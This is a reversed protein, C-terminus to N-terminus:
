GNNLRRYENRITDEMTGAKPAAPPTGRRQVNVAAAKRAAAAQEAERKQREANQKALLKDRTTPNAWIAKDYATQPDMGTRVLALLDEFVDGIMEARAPDSLFKQAQAIREAQEAEERARQSRQIETEVREIRQLVPALEPPAAADGHPAPTAEHLNIGYGQALQFLTSRKQEPSGTALARWAGLVDRLVERPTGGLQRMVEFHPAVDEFVSRGFAAADRYQSLGKHFDEERRHIEQRVDEPLTAFKEAHEKKWTNPASDWPKAETPTEPAAPAASAEPPTEIDDVAAVPEPMETTRAFRGNPERTREAPEATLERYTERITDEMSDPAGLAPEPTEVPEPLTAQETSM